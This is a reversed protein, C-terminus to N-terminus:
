IDWFRIEVFEVHTKTGNWSQGVNPGGGEQIWWPWTRSLCDGRLVPVSPPGALVPLRVVPLGRGLLLRQRRRSRLLRHPSVM